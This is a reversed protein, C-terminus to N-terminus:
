KPRASRLIWEIGVFVLYILVVVALGAGMCLMGLSAAGSGYILWILGMGVLLFLVIAGLGLFLQTKNAYDRMDRKM